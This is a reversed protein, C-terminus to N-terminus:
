RGTRKPMATAWEKRMEALGEMYVTAREREDESELRTLLSVARALDREITRESTRFYLHRIERLAQDSDLLPTTVAWLPVFRDARRKVM